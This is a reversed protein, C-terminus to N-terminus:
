WCQDFFLVSLNLNKGKGFIIFETLLVIIKRNLIRREARKRNKKSFIFAWTKLMKSARAFTPFGALGTASVAAIARLAERRTVGPM